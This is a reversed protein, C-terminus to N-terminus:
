WLGERLTLRTSFEGRRLREKGNTPWFWGILALAIPISGWVVGWPNFISWVFMLSTALAAVLPWLSPGHVPYRHDPEADLLHTVLIEKSDASLGIVPPPHLEPHWLPERSAVTPLPSFNYSPPPSSTAWELTSGGWPNEGAPAGHRLSRVVNVLYLLLSLFIIGAGITALLNLNFWGLGAPYTYVRRPMGYLGLIHMPFFTLNFGAFLMWFGIKGLRESMMRGTMKPFWYVIAGLLPFISGGILVYHFHAVIFYTDHVQRDLPVSALMVGTLGGIIFIFFFSAMYLFATTIQLRRATWITAIWAFLQVATPIVIMMSAATFFSQGLQPLGTAFMHHVWVGFGIFATAVMSLVMALYGFVPRRSFTGIVESMMGLAPMFIIYVEPHGFFWFLHQWLIADGGEAQNFFQTSVLRDLILCTSSIMVAPMAFIIMFSVILMSWVFLPMRNLSMGPTRHKLITVILCTATTLSSVESFTILQAWVDARKGYGFEPGALPPYSFWGNDPGTNGLFMVYLFIGGFLMLWYSYALLKPLGMDRAGIMLPVFYVGMALVVPVAFLFMMTTGHMTFVQNYLDPGLFTNEPRALQVRMMAALLGGLIFWIFATVIFRRGIAKHDVESLWGIFGRPNKWARALMQRETDLAAPDVRPDNHVVRARLQEDHRKKEEGTPGRV